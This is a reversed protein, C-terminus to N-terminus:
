ATRTHPSASGDTFVHPDDEAAYCQGAALREQLQRRRWRKIAAVTAPDLNVTMPKSNNPSDTEIVTGGSPIRQRHVKVTGADVDRWHLGLAEGRRQADADV